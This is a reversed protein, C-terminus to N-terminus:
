THGFSVRQWRFQGKSVLSQFMMEVVNNLSSNGKAGMNTYMSCISGQKPTQGTCPAQGHYMAARAKRDAPFEQIEGASVNVSACVRYLCPGCRTMVACGAFELGDSSVKMLM